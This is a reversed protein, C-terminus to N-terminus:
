DLSILVTINFAMKNFEPQAESFSLGTVYSTFKASAISITVPAMKKSIRNSEYWGRLDGAIGGGSGDKGLLMMGSITGEAWASGFVYITRKDNLTVSPQIIERLNIPTGTIICKGEAGKDPLPPEIKLFSTGGGSDSFIHIYGACSEIIASM